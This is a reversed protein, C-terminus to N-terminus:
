RFTDIKLRDVTLFIVEIDVKVSVRVLLCLPHGLENFDLLQDISSCTGLIGTIGLVLDPDPTHIAKHM